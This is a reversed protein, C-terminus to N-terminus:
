LHNEELKIGLIRLAQHCFLERSADVGFKNQILKECRAMQQRRHQMNHADSSICDVFGGSILNMAQRKAAFGYEGLPADADVQFLVGDQKLAIWERKKGQLATYREVHALVPTFGANLLSLVGDLIEPLSANEAYDILVNDTHNLTKCKGSSVWAHCGQQYHLENGMCLIFSPDADALYAKLEQFREVAIAANDGFLAPYFHPTVCMVRIGQKVSTDVLALM